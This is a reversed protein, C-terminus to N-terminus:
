SDMAFRLGSTPDVPHWYISGSAFSGAARHLRVPVEGLTRGTGTHRYRKLLPESRANGDAEAM